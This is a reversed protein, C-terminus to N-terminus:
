DTIVVLELGYHLDVHELARPSKLIIIIKAHHM